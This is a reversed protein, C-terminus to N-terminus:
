LRLVWSATLRPRTSQKPKQEARFKKKLESIYTDLREIRKNKLCLQIKLRQIEAYKAIVQSWSRRTATSPPAASRLTLANASPPPTMDAMSMSIIDKLPNDRLERPVHPSLVSSAAVSNNGFSSENSLPNNHPPPPVEPPVPAQREYHSALWNGASTAPCGKMHGTV